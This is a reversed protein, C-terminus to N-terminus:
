PRKRLTSDPSIVPVQGKLAFQMSLIETSATCRSQEVFANTVEVPVADDKGIEISEVHSASLVLYVFMKKNPSILRATNLMCHFDDGGFTLDMHCLRLIAGNESHALVYVLAKSALTDSEM